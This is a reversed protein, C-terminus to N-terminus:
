PLKQKLEALRQGVMRQLMEFHDDTPNQILQQEVEALCKEFTARAASLDGASRQALGLGYLADINNVESGLVQTYIGQAGKQDGQRHLAWAKGLQDSSVETGAM